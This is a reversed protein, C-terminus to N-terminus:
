VLCLTLLAFICFFAVYFNKEFHRALEKAADRETELEALQEYKKEIAKLTEADYASKLDRISEPCTKFHYALGRTEFKLTEFDVIKKSRKTCEDFFLRPILAYESVKDDCVNYLRKDFELGFKALLLSVCAHFKFTHQYNARDYQYLFAHVFEHIMLGKLYDKDNENLSRAVTLVNIEIVQRSPSCLGAFGLSAPLTFILRWPDLWDLGGNDFENILAKFQAQLENTANILAATEIEIHRPKLTTKM